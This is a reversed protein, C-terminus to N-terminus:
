VLPQTPEQRPGRACEPDPPFFCYGPPSWHSERSVRSQAGRNEDARERDPMHRGLRPPFVTVGLDVAHPQMVHLLAFARQNDKEVTKGLEPVGPFIQERVEP